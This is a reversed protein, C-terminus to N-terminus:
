ITKSKKNEKLHYAWVILSYFFSNTIILIFVTSDWVVDFDTNRVATDTSFVLFALLLLYFACCTFLACSFFTNIVKIKQIIFNVAVGWIIFCAFIIPSLSLIFLGSYAEGAGGDNQIIIFLSIILIITAVLAPILKIKTKM